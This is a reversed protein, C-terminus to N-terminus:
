GSAELIGKVEAVRQAVIGPNRGELRLRILPETNSPRVNFWYDDFEVSVGDLRDIRAGSASFREGVRQMVAEKDAVEVNIEESQFYRDALPAVLESLPKGHKRLLRLLVVLAYAASETFYTDTVRFYAHGSTEAGFLAKHEVMADYVFTYGVRSVVPEGGLERVREPLVRSSILDYVIAAGPNRGLLEEAVLAALFYNEISQGKEDLFVVRDGDGDFLAALAAGSARVAEAAGKGAGPKLPNPDRNPFAGDPEENLITSKLGLRESLARFVRGAAGNGVDIVVAMDLRRGNGATLVFDIYEDLRDQEQLSGGAVPPEENWGSVITEIRDLGKSYSVSGGRGDYLKFGHYKPPNHSATVMVAGDFGDRMQYFHLQPTSVLGLGRVRKGEDVLGQLVSRYLEPSHTRADHGVTFSDKGIFRAFARGLRYALREDIEEGYVGRVDYTKFVGM